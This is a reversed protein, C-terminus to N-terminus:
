QFHNLVFRPVYCALLYPFFYVPIKDVMKRTYMSENMVIAFPSQYLSIFSQVALPISAHSFSKVEIPILHNDWQLVMDVETQHQTRWYYIKMGYPLNKKIENYSVTEVLEGADARDGISSMNSILYNRIGVDYFYSKKLKSIEKRINRFYPPVFYNVFTQELIFLHKELTNRQVNLRNSLSHINALCGTESALIKMLSNFYILNETGLLGKIDKQLYSSCVEDLLGRREMPDTELTPKPLGGWILFNRFYNQLQQIVGSSMQTNLNLGQFYDAEKAGCFYLYESFDLPYLQVIRKRGVMSEELSKQIEVSSSGSAIIKVSPFNDVMAKVFKGAEKIYHFEDIFLYLNEPEKQQPKLTIGQSQLYQLFGSVGEAFLSLSHPLELNFYFVKKQGQRLEEELKKMLTTKGVQRPGMLIVASEKELLTALYLFATRPYFIM